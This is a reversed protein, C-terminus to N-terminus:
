NALQNMVDSYAQNFVRLFDTSTDYFTTGTEQCKREIYRSVLKFHEIKDDPQRINGLRM